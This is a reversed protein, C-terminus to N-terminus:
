ALYSSNTRFDSPSQGTWRKFARGFHSPNEFGLEYAITAIPEATERLLSRALTERTGELLKQYSTEDQQLRRRFSRPSMGFDQALEDLKPPAAINRLFVSQVESQFEGERIANALQVECMEELLRVTQPDAQKLPTDIFKPDLVVRNDPQGFEVSFGFSSKVRDFGKPQLLALELRQILHAGNLPDWFLRDLFLAYATLAFYQVQNSRVTPALEIVFAGDTEDVSTELTRTFLRGYRSFLNLARSIKGSNVVAMIALSSTAIDVRESVRIALHPDDTVELARLIFREHLVPDLRFEEDSLQESTLALGDLLTAENYGEDILTSLVLRPFNPLHRVSNSAPKSPM